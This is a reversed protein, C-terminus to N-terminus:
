RLPPLVLEPVDWRRTEVLMREMQAPPQPRAFLYGQLRDCGMSCLREKQTLTEVGEAVTSLGLSRGLSIIADVIAEDEQDRGLGDVFCRDIKLFDLPFRKIYALSSYGTGFDDLGVTVGLKRLVALEDRVQEGAELLVTETIELALMDPSCRTDALVRKVTEAVPM